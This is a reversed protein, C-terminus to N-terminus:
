PQNAKTRGRPKKLIRHYLFDAILLFSATLALSWSGITSGIVLNPSYILNIAAVALGALLIGLLFAVFKSPERFRINWQKSAFWRNCREMAKLYSDQIFDGVAAGIIILAALVRV